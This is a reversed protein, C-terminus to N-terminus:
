LTLTSLLCKLPHPKGTGSPGVVLVNSHERVYDCSALRLVQQRNIQPNFNWDFGELTHASNLAAKKLRQALQNQARREIEDELLRSLFESFGWQGVEAERRRGELTVLMGGLKLQKLRPVLEANNLEM